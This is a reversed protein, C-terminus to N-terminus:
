LAISVLLAIAVLGSLSNTLHLASSKVSDGAAVTTSAGAGPPPPAPVVLSTTAASSPRPSFATAVSVSTTTTSVSTTPAVSLTTTPIASTTTSLASSTPLVPSTSTAITSSAPLPPLPSLVCINNICSNGVVCVPGPAVNLCLEGPGVPPMACMSVGNPFISCTLVSLCIPLDTGCPSGVIQASVLSASAVVLATAAIIFM